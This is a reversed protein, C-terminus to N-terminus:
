RLAVTLTHDKLIWLALVAQFSREMVGDKLLNNGLWIYHLTPDDRRGIGPLPLWCPSLLSNQLRCSPVRSVIGGGTRWRSSASCGADRRPPPPISGHQHEWSEVLAHVCPPHHQHRHSGTWNNSISGGDGFFFILDIKLQTILFYVM